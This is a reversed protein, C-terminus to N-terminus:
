ALKILNYKLGLNDLIEKERHHCTFLLIQKDDSMQSLFGLINSLREDDYQIFCDDLILPLSKEKMSSMISFRLSFYLQDITGGSLSDIDIIEKTTPNEISIDLSDDIKVQDYKGNTLLKVMQSVRKNISPAFQNHIEKSIDEITEKAIEISKIRNDYSEILDKTRHIEEEMVLLEKVETNLNDIREELRANSDNMSLLNEEKKMIEDTIEAKDIERIDEFYEDDYSALKSKLEDLSSDGLIRELVKTKNEKDKVLTEYIRKKELGEKFEELTNSNNKLIIENVKVMAKKLDKEKLSLNLIIEKKEQTLEDIKNVKNSRNMHSLYIDDYLRKLEPKSSCSYKLLLDKQFNEIHTIRKKNKDEETKIDQIRGRLNEMEINSKKRKSRIYISIISLPIALLVLSPNIFGLGLSGITLLILIIMFIKSKEDKELEGKLESNLIELKNEQSNLILNSKEDEIEDYSAIDEYLEKVKIGKVVEEDTEIKTNNLIEVVNALRDKLEKIEKSLYKSDGHLQLAKTYEDFSLNSYDRLDEIEEDIKELEKKISLGEEYTKKNELIHIKELKIKLEKLGRKEEEIKGKLDFSENLCINYEEQKVLAEKRKDLLRNLKIKSRGYPRTYARETGIDELQKELNAIANKVSIDDDLSTSINALRDKVEKSLSSDIKNGLQKISITNKYVTNNFGLFYMGPLHVKVKEGTDIVKTIDGGTLDDYVKVKGKAFDREIRYPKGDKLFRLIGRYQEGSWPRYKKYEELYNRNKAYPKLFGYFMGDIFNHITTKGSENEGYFINLGDELKLMKNQFKGFSILNLEKLIM